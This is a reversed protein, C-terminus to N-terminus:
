GAEIMFGEIMVAIDDPRLDPLISKGIDTRKWEPETDCCWALPTLECGDDLVVIECWHKGRTHKTYLLYGADGAPCDGAAVCKGYDGQLKNIAMGQMMPLPKSIDFQSMRLNM